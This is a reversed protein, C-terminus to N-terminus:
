YFYFKWSLSLILLVMHHLPHTHLLSYLAYVKVIKKL